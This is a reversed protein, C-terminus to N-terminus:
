PMPLRLVAPIHRPLMGYMMLTIQLERLSTSLKEMGGIVELNDEMWRYDVTKEALVTAGDEAYKVIRLSPVPTAEEFATLEIEAVSGVSHGGLAGDKAVGDGVLRLPGSETIPKGNLKNAIIYDNSWAVDQSAFDKTYGDKAKVLITYGATALNADFRPLATM